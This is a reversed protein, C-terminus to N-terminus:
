VTVDVQHKEEEEPEEPQEQEASGQVSSRKPFKPSTRPERRDGPPDGTPRIPISSIEALDAL